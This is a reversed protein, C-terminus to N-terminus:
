SKREPFALVKDRYYEYQERRADREARISVILAQMADLQEAIRHQVNLAPLPIGVKALSPKSINFRTVGNACRSIAVRMPYSRLIHKMYNPDLSNSRKPRFGTCFSNLYTPEDPELTVVSTM